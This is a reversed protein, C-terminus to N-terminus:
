LHDSFALNSTASDQDTTLWTSSFRRKRLYVRWIKVM